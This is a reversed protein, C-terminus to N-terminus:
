SNTGSPPTEGPAYGGGTSAKAAVAGSVVSTIIPRAAKVAERLLESWMSPKAAAAVKEEAHKGNSGVVEPEPTLAEKLSEFKEKWTEDKSPVVTAAAAFGAVAAVGLSIWPYQQTWHRVDIGNKLDETIEHIVQSM